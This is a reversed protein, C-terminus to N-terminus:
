ASSKFIDKLGLKRLLYEHEAKGLAKTLVDARQEETFVHDTKIMGQSIM